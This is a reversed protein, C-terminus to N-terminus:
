FIVQVILAGILFFLIGSVIKILLNETYEDMLPIPVEGKANPIKADERPVTRLVSEGNTRCDM